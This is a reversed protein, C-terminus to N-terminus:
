NDHYEDHTTSDHESTDGNNEVKSIAKTDYSPKSAANDNALQFRAMMIIVVILEELTEDEYSNDLMCDNEEDKLNSRAEDKMALLMQERFYKQTVFEQNVSELSEGEKASFKDFEDMLRSHRAHNTVDYGFMLRKIREWIDKANKCVDISNYIDNPIAQLLYNKVRIDAIYQKKNGKTMKSLPKLIQETLKDLNPIMPRVYPGKEISRWMKDGDELKNDLFRRFRQFLKCFGLDTNRFRKWHSVFGCVCYNTNFLFLEIKSDACFSHGKRDIEMSPVRGSSLMKESNSSNMAIFISSFESDSEPFIDEDKIKSISDSPANVIRNRWKWVAWLAIQFVGQLIKGTNLNGMLYINGRAIDSILFSPFVVPSDLNWWSWVKWKRPIWSNWYHHNGICHDALSINQIRKSLLSVEFFGSADYVWQWKDMGDVGAGIQNSPSNFDGDAGYFEKIVSNWMAKDKTLFRWKWKGLLGLNKVQLCGVRRISELTNIVKIPAKFLSLYYVPHSGLISKIFTLRDGVSLSKAKWSSLKERFRNIIVNWGDCVRIRKGVPLGLYIFSLLDHSCGLSAAMANVNSISVEVSILGSKALNVKLVSGLDFCKFIHILNKANSRSWERFFSADDAYQLLLVNVGSEAISVGKLVGKNCAELISIQLAEVVLLFLFPSIPDGQRLDREMKFEKSPPGNIIISISASSLCSSMWKIWKVGFGM